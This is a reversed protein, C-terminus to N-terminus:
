DNERTILYMRIVLGDTFEYKTNKRDFKASSCGSSSIITDATAKNLNPDNTPCTEPVFMPLM